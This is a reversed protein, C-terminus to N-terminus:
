LLDVMREMVADFEPAEGEWASAVKGDKLLAVAPTTVFWEKKQSLKGLLCPSEKSVPGDGYPPMEVLAIRLFDENGALDRAMQEYVPVAKACDPCDHHYLLVLWNGQSLEAGIDIERSIPLEKDVWTLPELVEYASTSTEPKNKALVVTTTGVAILLLGAVWVCRMFPLPRFFRRSARLVTALWAEPARPSEGRGGSRPRVVRWFFLRAALLAGSPRFLILAILAPLDILSLTIWPNVHVNGFCGCSAAGSIGQYLTVGSFLTFCLATVLWSLRKFLGSILWIGMGLEFEVQLILFPRYSWMDTNAVPTTLLEHGKLMVTALLLVGLIRLVVDSAKM